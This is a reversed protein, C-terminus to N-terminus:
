PQGAPCPQYNNTFTRLSTSREWGDIHYRVFGERIEAVTARVVTKNFPDPPSDPKMCWTEGIAVAPQPVPVPLVASFPVQFWWELLLIFGFGFCMGKLFSPADGLM